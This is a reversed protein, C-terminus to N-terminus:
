TPWISTAMFIEKLCLAFTNKKLFGGGGKNGMEKIREQCGTVKGKEWVGSRDRM